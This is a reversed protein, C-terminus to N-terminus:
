SGEDGVSVEVGLFHSEIDRNRIVFPVEEAEWEIDFERIGLSRSFIFPLHVVTRDTGVLAAASPNIQWIVLFPEFLSLSIDELGVLSSCEGELYGLLLESLEIGVVDHLFEIHERRAVVEIGAPVEDTVRLGAVVVHVVEAVLRRDGNPVSVRVLSYARAVIVVGQM